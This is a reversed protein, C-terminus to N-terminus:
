RNEATLEYEEMRENTMWYEELTQLIEAMTLPIVKIPESNELYECLETYNLIQDDAKLIMERYTQIQEKPFPTTDIFELDERQTKFFELKRYWIAKNM